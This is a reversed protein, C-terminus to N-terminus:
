AGGHLRERRTTAVERIKAKIAEIGLFGFADKDRSERRARLSSPAPNPPPPPAGVCFAGGAVPGGAPAAPPLPTLSRPSPELSRPSPAPPPGTARPPPAGFKSPAARLPPVTPGLPVLQDPTVAPARWEQPPLLLSNPLQPLHSPPGGRSLPRSAAQHAALAASISADVDSFSARRKIPLPQVGGASREEHDRQLTVNGCEPVNECDFEEEAEGGPAGDEYEEFVEEGEGAGASTPRAASPPARAVRKRRRGGGSSVRKKAPKRRADREFEEFDEEQYFWDNLRAKDYPEIFICANRPQM